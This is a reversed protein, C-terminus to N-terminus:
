CAGLDPLWSDVVMAECRQAEVQVMAQAGGEAERVQWRSDALIAALRRRRGVDASVVVSRPESRRAEIPASETRRTNKEIRPQTAILAGGSNTNTEALSSM